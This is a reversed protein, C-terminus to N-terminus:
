SVYFPPTSNHFGAIDYEALKLVDFRFLDGLDQAEFRFVFVSKIQMITFTPSVFDFCVYVAGKGDVGGTLAGKAVPIIDIVEASNPIHLGANGM